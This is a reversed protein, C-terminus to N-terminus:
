KKGHVDKGKKPEEVDPSNVDGFALKHLEGIKSEIERLRGDTKGDDKKGGTGTLLAYKLVLIMGIAQIITIVPVGGGNVIPPAGAWASFLIAFGLCGSYYIWMYLGGIAVVCLTLYWFMVKGGALQNSKYTENVAKWANFLEGFM